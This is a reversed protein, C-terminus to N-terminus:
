YWYGYRPTMPPAQALWRRWSSPNMQLHRHALFDFYNSFVQYGVSHGSVIGYRWSMQAKIALPDTAAGLLLLAMASALGTRDAGQRCHILVPPRAQALVGTLRRLQPYTARGHAPLAIDFHQLHHAKVLRMEDQYWLAEPHAGRLNIISHIHHQAWLTNLAPANLQASRYVSLPLVAHQNGTWIHKGLYVALSLGSLVVALLLAAIVAKITRMMFEKIEWTLGWWIVIVQSQAEGM